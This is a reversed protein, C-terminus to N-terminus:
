RVEHRMFDVVQAVLTFLLAFVFKKISLLHFILTARLVKSALKVFLDRRM